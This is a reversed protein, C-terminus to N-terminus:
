ITDPRWLKVTFMSRFNATGNTSNAGSSIQTVYHEIYDTTGNCHVDTVVTASSGATGPDPRTVAQPDVRTGNLSISSVLQVYNTAGNAMALHGVCQYWGPVDPIVRSNNVTGSHWSTGNNFHFEESGTGYDLPTPSGSTLSRASQQILRIGLRNLKKLIAAVDLDVDTALEQIDQYPRFADSSQPYTYGRNSTNTAM